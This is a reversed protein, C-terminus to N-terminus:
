ESSVNRRDQHMLWHHVPHHVLLCVQWLLHLSTTSAEAIHQLSSHKLIPNQKSRSATAERRSLSRMRCVCSAPLHPLDVKDQTLLRPATFLSHHQGAFAYSVPRSPSSLSTFIFGNAKDWSFRYTQMQLLPFSLTIKKRLDIYVRPRQTVTDLKEKVNNFWSLKWIEQQLIIWIFKEKKKCLM